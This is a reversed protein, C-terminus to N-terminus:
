EKHAFHFDDTKILVCREIEEDTFLETIPLFDTKWGAAELKAAYDEGYFRIHGPDGFVEAREEPSTISPDEHTVPMGPKLPVQLLARGGPKLVRLMERMAKSDEEVYELVHSCLIVDYTNDAIQPMSTIDICQTDSPYTSEFTDAFKDGPTYDLGKIKKYRAYFMAEPAIHLM